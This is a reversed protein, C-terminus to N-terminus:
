EECVKCWINMTFAPWPNLSSQFVAFPNRSGFVVDFICTSPSKNLKDNTLIISTCFQNEWWEVKANCTRPLLNWFLNSSTISELDINRKTFILITIYNWKITKQIKNCLSIFTTRPAALQRIKKPSSAWTGIFTSTKSRVFSWPIIRFYHLYNGLKDMSPTQLSICTLVQLQYILQKGKIFQIIITKKNSKAAPVSQLLLRNSFFLLNSQNSQTPIPDREWWPSKISTKQKKNKLLKM